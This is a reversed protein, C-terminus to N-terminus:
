WIVGIRYQPPITLRWQNNRRKRLYSSPTNYQSILQHALDLPTAIYGYLSDTSPRTTPNISLVVPKTNGVKNFIAAWKDAQTQDFLTFGVSARRFKKRDKYFSQRGPIRAGESPDVLSISFADGINRTPEYYAGAMVRGVDIYADTNTADAITLRWWQFTENLYFVIRELVNGDADTAVTLVQSYTPSGWSDTANGELTVTASATLNFSFMSFVTLNTAGGLDFKIWEASIGTTRWPKSVHDHVANDDALDASSESSSTITAADWTDANYLLRVNAM